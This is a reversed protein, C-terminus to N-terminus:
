APAALYRCTHHVALGLGEYFTLAPQNDTEVHLWVTTAGQEAASELLDAVLARAHGQRRHEPKVHLDHIGFWDGDLHGEAHGVDRGPPPGAAALARRARVVSGLLFHADGGPVVAWDREALLVETDSGLEVQVLPTLGHSTYHGVVKVTAEDLPVHPDGVALCSNARKRRRGAPSPQHRLQWDGLEEVEIDSFLGATHREAALVSVRQRPSARPPVPKGSVVLHVPFIVAEGDERRVVALGEPSTDWRELVGLVDTFAPGGSPGTVGPVVRRVVVRRGLAHPGLHGVRQPEADEPM